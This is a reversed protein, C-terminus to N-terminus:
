NKVLTHFGQLCFGLEKTETGQSGWVPCAGGTLYNVSGSLLGIYHNEANLIDSCFCIPHELSISMFSRNWLLAPSSGINLESYHVFSDLFGKIECYSLM